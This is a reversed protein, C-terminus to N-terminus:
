ENLHRRTFNRSVMERASFFQFGWIYPIAVFHNFLFRIPQSTKGNRQGDQGGNGAALACGPIGLQLGGEGKRALVPVPENWRQM